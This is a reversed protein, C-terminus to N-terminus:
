LDSKKEVKERVIKYTEDLDTDEKKRVFFISIGIKSQRSYTSCAQILM